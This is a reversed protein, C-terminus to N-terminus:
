TTTIYSMPEDGSAVLSGVESLSVYEVKKEPDGEVILEQQSCPYTPRIDTPIIKSM